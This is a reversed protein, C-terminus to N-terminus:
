GRTMNYVIFKATDGFWSPSFNRTSFPLNVFQHRLHELEDGDAQVETVGDIWGDGFRRELSDSPLPNGVHWTIFGAQGDRKPLNRHSIFMM